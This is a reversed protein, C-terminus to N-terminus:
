NREGKYNVTKLRVNEYDKRKAKIEWAFKVNPKDSKVIFMNNNRAFVWVKADDYSSLFVQYPVSTNVTELFLPELNIIKVGQKDTQSEGIDGFYYEATEYANIAVYGKSSPVVSNKSGYVHLNTADLNEIYTNKIKSISVESATITIKDNDGLISAGLGDGNTRIAFTHTNKYEGAKMYLQPGLYYKSRWNVPRTELSVNNSKDVIESYTFSMKGVNYVDLDIGSGGNYGINAIQKSPDISSLDKSIFINGDTILLGRTKKTDQIELFGNTLDIKLNKNNYLVGKQFSVDGSDLNINLNTGSITGSTINNANLNTVNIKSADLKKTKITNANIDKILADLIVANDILTKGTIKIRNGSLMVGDGNISVSSNKVNMNLYNAMQVFRSNSGTLYDSITRTHSDATDIVQNLQLQTSPVYVGVHNDKVLMPQSFQWNSSGRAILHLTMYNAGNPVTVNEVKLTRYYPYNIDKAAVSTEKYGMRSSSLDKYFSITCIAYGDRPVDSGGTVWTVVSASVVEGPQVKVYKDKRHEIYYYDSLTGRTSAFVANSGKYNAWRDNKSYAVNRTSQIGDMNHPDTGTYAFESNYYLNTQGTSGVIRKSVEQAFGDSNQLFSANTVIKGMSQWQSDSKIANVADNKANTRANNAATDINNDVDDPNPSWPTAVNGLEIKFEKWGFTTTTGNNSNGVPINWASFGTPIVGSATSYGSQGAKIVNGEIAGKDTWIRVWTDRSPREIWVRVTMYKGQYDKLKNFSSSSESGVYIWPSATVNALKNSTHKALNIGGGTSNAIDQVNTIKTYVTSFENSNATIKGSLVEIKDTMDEPSPSWDTAITGKELKLEKWSLSVSVGDGAGIVLNAGTIDKNLTGHVESYGSQGAKIVNGKFLGNGGVYAQLWSDKNPKEIWVKATFNDLPYISKFFNTNYPLRVWDNTTSKQQLEKSTGKLLNTGGVNLNDFRANLGDVSVKVDASKAYGSLDSATLKARLEQATQEKFSNYESTGVKTSLQSSLSNATNTITAISGNVDQFQQKFQKSDNQLASINGQADKISQQMGSETLKIQAIDGKNTAVTANMGNLDVKLQSVREIEDEPAPSWDTPVNGKELKLEKWSLSVSVGDGAGIVLNAGTIDKNLTGHVESYGSQGAKIVNGKFLGNGGVYAQLWSDKNPKEIWVKATFNDLPYISKFFNTNYPLRVWDNTTSKQQLEKSTGKLLNTGGVNLNDFRANLGDVSVKVDASKAYGSLDSATLKARLEQATQEKFSNYESTGVKTSLQSSLSNATNTITAISGNVDQFQQKFQKSDNQLASINGQADKISQQMGSETLKIQAIDGKNTAVTANMGNLDVKLQSVREIEDEPAPSWDTPVNGKEVKAMKTWYTVTGNKDRNRTHLRVKTTDALLTKTFVLRKEEGPSAWVSFESSSGNQKNEGKANYQYIELDVRGASSSDNKVWASFTYTEGGIVPIAQNNPTLYSVGWGDGTFKVYDKTTNQMLNTGGIKINDVKSNVNNVNINVSDLGVTLKDIRNSNSLLDQRAKDLNQSTTQLQQRDKDAQTKLSTVSGNVRSIEDSLNPIQNSIGDIRNSNSLLDQRAKDLNQSTTQLQQRDKDAQTKLSTVSGNVRSIEDSLNPIQNSIGDIRSKMLENTASQTNANDKFSKDLEDFDKLADNIKQEVEGNVPQKVWKGTGDSQQEFIWLETSNGNPKFWVDNFKADTPEKVDTYINTGDPAQRRSYNEIARTLEGTYKVTSSDTANQDAKSTSSLGGNFSITYGNNPVIFVNGKMDKLSLWDGAEIAPNGFWNLSFPYFTVTKLSNWISDLLEQTMIDNTLEIQSGNVSGSHIKHTTENTEGNNTTEVANVNCSIGGIIYPAENKILGQQEYESPEITYNPEAVRRITLKGNRDFSAFGVYLQAIWGIATRYSQKTIAKSVKITPLHALDNTNVDVKCMQAIETIIDVANAPYTLKSIYQGEMVVFKDYAKITTSNNNRDMQIEDAIIFVGLPTYEFTGNPLKIGIRPKVIMGRKLGEVLHIFKVTINNEYTSGISFTDGTYGGSDYDFQEIDTAKYDVGNVNVVIDLTREASQYALKAENSQKYM